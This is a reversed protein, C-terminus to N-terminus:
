LIDKRVFVFSFVSINVHLGILPLQLMLWNTLFRYRICDYVLRDVSKKKGPM